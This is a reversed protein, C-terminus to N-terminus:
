KKVERIQKRLVKFHGKIYKEVDKATEFFDQRFMTTGLTRDMPFVKSPLDCLLFLECDNIAEDITKAKKVKM